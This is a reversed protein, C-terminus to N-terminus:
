QGGGAAARTRLEQITADLGTLLQAAGLMDLPEPFDFTERLELDGRGQQRIYVNVTVSVPPSESRHGM